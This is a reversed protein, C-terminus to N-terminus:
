ICKIVKRIITIICKILSLITKTNNVVFLNLLMILFVKKHLILHLSIYRILQSYLLAAKLYLVLVIYM